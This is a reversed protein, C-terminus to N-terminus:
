AQMSSHFVMDSKIRDDPIAKKTHHKRKTTDRDWALGCDTCVIMEDLEHPDDCILGQCSACARDDIFDRVLRQMRRLRIGRRALFIGFFALGAIFGVTISAAVFDGTTPHMSSVQGILGFVGGLFLLFLVIVAFCDWFSLRRPRAQIQEDRSENSQKMLVEFIQGRGDILCSRRRQRKKLHVLLGARDERLFEVWLGRDWGAGCEPCLVFGHENDEIEKIAYGCAGCIESQDVSEFITKLDDLNRKGKRARVDRRANTLRASLSSVVVILFLIAAVGAINGLVGPVNFLSFGIWGGFNWGLRVLWAIIVLHLILRGLGYLKLWWKGEHSRQEVVDDEAHEDLDTQEDFGDSFEDTNIESNSETDIVVGLDDLVGGRGQMYSTFLMRM